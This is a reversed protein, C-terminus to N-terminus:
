NRGGATTLTGALYSYDTAATFPVQPGWRCPPFHHPGASTAPPPAEQAPCGKTHASQSPCGSHCLGSGPFSGLPRLLLMGTGTVTVKCVGPDELSPPPTTRPKVALPKCQLGGEGLCSSGQFHGEEEWTYRRMQFISRARHGGLISPSPGGNPNLGVPGPGTCATPSESTVAHNGPATKMWRLGLCATARLNFM